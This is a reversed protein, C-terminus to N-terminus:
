FKILEASWTGSSDKKNVWSGSMFDRDKNLIGTHLKYGNVFSIFVSDKEMKWTDVEDDYFEGENAQEIKVNLYSFSQDKEFIIIKQVDNSQSLKWGTGRLDQGFGVISVTILFLSTILKM